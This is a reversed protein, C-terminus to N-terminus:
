QRVSEWASQVIKFLFDSGGADPHVAKMLARYRPRVSSLSDGYNIGLVEFPDLKLTQIPTKGPPKKYAAVISQISTGQKVSVLIADYKDAIVGGSISRVVEMMRSRTEANLALIKVATGYPVDDLASMDEGEGSPKDSQKADAKILGAAEREAKVAARLEKVTMRSVDNRALFAARDVTEPLKVMEFLKSTPLDHSTARNGFQDYVQIYRTATSADMGFGSLWTGWQGHTLDNDKVHKLLMGRELASQREAKEIERLKREVTELDASFVHRQKRVAM